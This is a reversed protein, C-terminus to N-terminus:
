KKSKMIKNHAKQALADRHVDNKKHVGVIGAHTHTKVTPNKDLNIVPIDEKVDDEKRIDRITKPEHVKETTIVLKRIGSLLIGKATEQEVEKDNVYVFFGESINVALEAVMEPLNKWTKMVETLPMPHFDMGEVSISVEPSNWVKKNTDWIKM